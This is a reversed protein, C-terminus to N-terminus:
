IVVNFSSKSHLNFSCKKVLLPIYHDCCSSKLHPSLLWGSSEVKLPHVSIQESYLSHLSTQRFQLRDSRFWMKILRMKDGGSLPPIAFLQWKVYHKNLNYTNTGWRPWCHHVPGRQLPCYWGPLSATTPEKAWVSQAAVAQADASGAVPEGRLQHGLSLLFIHKLCTPM